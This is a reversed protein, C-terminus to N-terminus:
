IAQITDNYNDKNFTLLVNLKSMRLFGDQM